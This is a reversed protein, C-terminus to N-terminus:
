PLLTKSKGAVSKGSDIAPGSTNTHNAKIIKTEIECNAFPALLNSSIPLFLHNNSIPKIGIIPTM